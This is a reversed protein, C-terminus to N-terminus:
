HEPGRAQEPPFRIELTVPAGTPHLRIFPTPDQELLVPDWRTPPMTRLCPVSHYRLVVTGDVGPRCDRVLLRGPTAEVEATGEIAAGNFGNIRAFLLTGDDDVVEILDSIRGASRAALSAWCLIYSPRYLRAYRVFHDRNWKAQGFMAGEGFQTFNAILAAHLYPGGIM